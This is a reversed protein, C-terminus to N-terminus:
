LMQRLTCRCWLLYGLFDLKRQESAAEKAQLHSASASSGPEKRSVRMIRIRKRRCPNWSGGLGFPDIGKRGLALPPSRGTPAPICFQFISAMTVRSADEVGRRNGARNETAERTCSIEGGNREAVPPDAGTRGRRPQNGRWTEEWFESALSPCCIIAFNCHPWAEISLYCVWTFIFVPRTIHMNYRKKGFM